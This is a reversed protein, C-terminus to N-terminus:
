IDDDIVPAIEATDGFHFPPVDPLPDFGQPPENSLQEQFQEGLTQDVDFLAIAADGGNCGALDATLWHTDPSCRSSLTVGVVSDTARYEALKIRNILDQLNMRAILRSRSELTGDGYEDRVRTTLADVNYESREIENTQRRVSRGIEVTLSRVDALLREVTASVLSYHGARNKGSIEPHNDQDLTELTRDLIEQARDEITYSLNNSRKLSGVQSEFESAVAEGTPMSRQGYRLELIELTTDRAETLIEGVEDGLEQEIDNSSVLRPDELEETTLKGSADLDTSALHAIADSRPSNSNAEEEEGDDEEDDGDDISPVSDGEDEEDDDDDVGDYRIISGQVDEPAVEGDPRGIHLEVGSPDLGWSEAVDKLYPTFLAELDRRLSRVLKKFQREHAGAVAENESHRSYSGLAYKPGPMGSVIHDVDTEVYSEIDATEGAFEHIEIDGPVGQFMGPGLQNEAYDDMFDEQEDKNWPREATGLQFLIMPWAKMAIALDNDQLKERMAQSREFVPQVISNGRLDGIDPNRAWHIMQDRTFRRETRDQWRSFQEDFQVYAAVEGDDTTKLLSDTVEGSYEPPVLINAGPKTYMEVTTPNVANVAVHRGEEDTVQEGLYLGRVMYQTVAQKGVASFPKHTQGAKVGMHRLYESLEEETEVSDAEMWYGAEFVESTVNEVQTAIIPNNRYETWYDETEPEPRDIDVTTSYIETSSRSFARPDPDTDDASILSAVGGRASEVVNDPSLRALVSEDTSDDTDSSYLEEYRSSM